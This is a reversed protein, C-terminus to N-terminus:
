ATCRYTDIRIDILSDDVSMMKNKVVNGQTVIVALLHEQDVQSLQVFKLTVKQYHPSSVMTAYNTNSALVNAVQKLLVEMKDVKQILAQKEEHETEREMMLQDVYFRYGADSPIRGASTHPQLILGMDELDAMENRITASSLNLEPHKSITRSGVPEGTELYNAIIAKLILKKRDNLEM